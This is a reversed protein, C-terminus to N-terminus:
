VLHVLDSFLCIAYSRMHFLFVFFWVWLYLFCIPAQFLHHWHYVWLSHFLTLIQFNGTLFYTLWPIYYVTQHSYNIISYKIDSLTGLLLHAEWTTGTTLYWIQRATCSVHSVQTWDRPCFSGRSFPMALWELIRAQLIGHISSGPLSRGFPWVSDSM